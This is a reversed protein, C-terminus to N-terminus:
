TRPRRCWAANAMRTLRDSASLNTIGLVMGRRRAFQGAARRARAFDRYRRIVSSGDEFSLTYQDNARVISAM